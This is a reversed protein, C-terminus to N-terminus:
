LPKIDLWFCLEETSLAISHAVKNPTHFVIRVCSSMAELLRQIEKVLVGEPALCEEEKSLLKLAYLKTALAYLLSPARM